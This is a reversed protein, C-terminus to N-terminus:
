QKVTELALQRGAQWAYTWGAYSTMNGIADSVVPYSTGNIVRATLKDKWNADGYQYDETHNPSAWPAPPIAKASKTRSIVAATMSM